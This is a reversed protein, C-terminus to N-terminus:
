PVSSLMPIVTRCHPCVVHQGSPQGDDDPLDAAGARAREVRRWTRLETRLSHVSLQEREALDLWREQEHRDLAAVEAHHSWSLSRRRREAAFRSAVYVMNMLSQRDYGTVTAARAYREGYRLNGYILWDGIWWAIGRGVLGLRRGQHLWESLALEREPIWSTADLGIARSLPRGRSSDLRRQEIEARARVRAHMTSAHM